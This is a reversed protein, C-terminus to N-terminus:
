AQERVHLWIYYIVSAVLCNSISRTETTKEVEVNKNYKAKKKVKKYWIFAIMNYLLLIRKFINDKKLVYVRQNTLTKNIVKNVGFTLNVYTTRKRAFIMLGVLFAGDATRCRLINIDQFLNEPDERWM